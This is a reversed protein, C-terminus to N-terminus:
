LNVPLDKSETSVWLLSRRCEVLSHRQPWWCRVSQPVESLVFLEGQLVPTLLASSLTLLVGDPTRHSRISPYHAQCYNLCGVLSRIAPHTTVRKRWQEKEGGDEPM